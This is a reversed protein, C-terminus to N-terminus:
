LSGVAVRDGDTRGRDAAGYPLWQGAEFDYLKCTRTARLYQGISGRSTRVAGPYSAGIHDAARPLQHFPIRADVHHPVHIFINHFWLANLLTPMRVVTTSEMQGHFQTWERRTWWRIDPDVHHVYVTWGIIQVFVLFPVVFLKTPLWVASTWGGTLAGIVMSTAVVVIVVSGLTLKDRVIADHRKGPANFRWMKQWWVVRLYYLGSGVCSWELRHRLRALRSFSRYEDVTTPHWVFDFGQRTTYGHHIRNHGLDWAAEVHLSPGMCIQAIARNARRSDVLAGHSADHGLVFLGAIGLGALLWLAVLAWWRDTLSLAVVPLLYLLSAGLLAVAARATSRRYCADPILMRVDNLSRGRPRVIPVAEISM